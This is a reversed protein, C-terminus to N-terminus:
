PHGAAARVGDDISLWRTRNVDRANAVWGKVYPQVITRNARFNRTILAENPPDCRSRDFDQVYVPQFEQLALLRASM